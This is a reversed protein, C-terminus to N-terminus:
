APFPSFARARRASPTRSRGPLADLVSSVQKRSLGTSEAISTLIEGKSPSKGSPKKGNSAAM